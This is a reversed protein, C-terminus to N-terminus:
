RSASQTLREVAQQLDGVAADTRSRWGPGGLVIRTRPHEQKVAKVCSEDAGLSSWLFLAAPRLTGIAGVLAPTPLQAGLVHVEVDHTALAAELALLPLSHQDPPATALVVKTRARGRRATVAIRRLEAALVHSVMHESEIGLRGASWERGIADLAPVILETWGRVVGLRSLARRILTRCAAVDLKEAAAVMVAPFVEPSLDGAHELDPSSSGTALVIRAAAAPSTGDDVFAKMRTLRGVDAPTYRRHGGDTRVTAGVGHRDEWSRLTTSPVGLLKSLQGLSIVDDPPQQSPETM